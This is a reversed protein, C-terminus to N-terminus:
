RHRLGWVYDPPTAVFLIAHVFLGGLASAPLSGLIYALMKYRFVDVGHGRRGTRKRQHGTLLIGIAVARDRTVPAAHGHAPGSLALFLATAAQVALLAVAKGTHLAPTVRQYGLFDMVIQLTLPYALTALAFYIGALRFTPLGILVAAVVGVLLSALLGLWPTIHWYVMLLVYRIPVWVSSSRTWPSRAPM